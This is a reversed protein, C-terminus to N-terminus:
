EQAGTPAHTKAYETLMRFRAKAEAHLETLRDPRPWHSDRHVLVDVGELAEGCEPCLGKSARAAPSM